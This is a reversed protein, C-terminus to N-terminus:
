SPHLSGLSSKAQVPAAWLAAHKLINFYGFELTAKGNFFQSVKTFQRVERIWSIWISFFITVAAKDEPFFFFVFTLLHSYLNRNRGLISKLALGEENVHFYQTSVIPTTASLIITRCLHGHGLGGFRM